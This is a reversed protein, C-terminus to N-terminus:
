GQMGKKDVKKKTLFAAILNCVDPNGEGITSQIVELLHKHNINDFCGVIDSKVLFDVPGWREM